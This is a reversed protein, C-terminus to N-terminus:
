STVANGVPPARGRLRSLSALSHPRIRERPRVPAPLRVTSSASERLFRLRLGDGARLLLKALLYAALAFPLQLALGVLFTPQLADGFPIVGRNLLGEFAEILVFALPPLCAFPAALTPADTPLSWWGGVRLALGVLLAATSVAAVVPVLQAGSAASAFLENRGEPSGFVANALAHALLVGALTLPLGVLWAGGRTRV